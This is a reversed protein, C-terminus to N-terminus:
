LSSVPESHTTPTIITNEHTEENKDAINSTQQLQVRKISYKQLLKILHSERLPCTIVLQHHGATLMALLYEIRHHDLDTMFDDILVLAPKNLLKLAAMKFIIALMKQQGRSAFHRAYQNSYIIEVDDLHAGYLTKQAAREREFSLEHWTKAKHTCVVMQAGLLHNVEKELDIVVQSRQAQISQSLEKCPETWADYTIQDIVSKELLSNRQRIMKEYERVMRGYAPNMMFLITDLFSRRTAPYGRLLDLDDETITIVRYHDLITQYSNVPKENIMIRKKEGSVGATLQWKEDNASSSLKLCFAQHEFSILQTPTKTRFSRLYCCYHLAELISTKGSGNDGEILTITADFNIDLQPFCRFNTLSLSTINM